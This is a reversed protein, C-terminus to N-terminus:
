EFSQDVKWTFLYSIFAITIYISLLLTFLGITFRVREDKFFSKKDASNDQEKDKKEKGTNDNGTAKEKAM